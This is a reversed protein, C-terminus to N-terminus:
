INSYKNNRKWLIQMEDKAKRRAKVTNEHQNCISINKRLISYHHKCVKKGPMVDEGCFYCKGERKWMEREGTSRKSDYRKRRIYCDRCLVGYSAPRKKCTMCLGKEKAERRRKKQLERQNKRGRETRNKYLSSERYVEICYERECRLCDKDCGM